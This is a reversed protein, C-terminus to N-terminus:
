KLNNYLNMGEEFSPGSYMPVGHDQVIYWRRGKAHNIIFSFKKDSGNGLSSALMYKHDYDYNDFTLKGSM